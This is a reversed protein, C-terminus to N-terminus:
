TPNAIIICFGASWALIIMLFMGGAHCVKSVFREWLLLGTSFQLAMQYIARCAAALHCSVGMTLAATSWHTSTSHRISRVSGASPARSAHCILLAFQVQDSFKFSLYEDSQHPSLWSSLWNIFCYLSFSHQKPFFHDTSRTSSILDVSLAWFVLHLISV